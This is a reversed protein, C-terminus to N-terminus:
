LAYDLRMIRITKGEGQYLHSAPNERGTPIFGCKLMVRESAINGPFFDGYLTLFGKKNFCYDVVSRLAETCLGQRWYPKAVWFGLEAEWPDIGINSEEFPYYCICGIAEGSQRSEMAWTHDNSLIDRIVERSKEIDTHPAFGAPIAVEKCSAHRLLAEADSDKWPRLILRRTELIAM